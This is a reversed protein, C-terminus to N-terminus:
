LALLRLNSAQDCAKVLRAGPSIRRAREAQLCKRDLQDMTALEPEDALEEVLKALDTGFAVEVDLVTVNGDEVVDSALIRTVRGTGVGVELAQTGNLPRSAQLARLLKGDCDEASVLEDYADAHRDYIERHDPM